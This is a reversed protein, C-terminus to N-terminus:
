PFPVRILNGFDGESRLKLAGGKEESGCHVRFYHGSVILLLRGAVYRDDAFVVQLFVPAEVILL